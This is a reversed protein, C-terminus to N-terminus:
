VALMVELVFTIRKPLIWSMKLAILVKMLLATLTRKVFRKVAATFIAFEQIGVQKAAEAGRLNPTLASLNVNPLNLASIVDSSDAMQPVWKPSVFAGAEIDKLGADALANILAVKDQTSVAAENQLGDRAGVEVIRVFDPFQAM